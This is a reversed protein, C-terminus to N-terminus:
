ETVQGVENGVLLDLTAGELKAGSVNILSAKKSMNLLTWGDM